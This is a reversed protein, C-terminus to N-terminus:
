SPNRESRLYEDLAAVMPGMKPHSPVVRPPVGLAELARACVPGVAAVVARGRLAARLADAREMGAAIDFLTRAQAQSTFIVAGVRGQLIETVLARLPGTDGPVRWEYLMLERAHAGRRALAGVLEANREGYHVLVVCRAALDVPALAALLEATTYPEAARVSAELGHRRLAAIPKPGRCVLAARALVERLNAERGISRAEDFLASVGAGTSLVMVPMPEAALADLLAALESGCTRREERMAPVSLPEGGRRRVLAALEGSMRGELLAVRVGALGSV